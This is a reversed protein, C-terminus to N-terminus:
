LVFVLLVRRVLVALQLPLVLPVLLVLLVLLLRLLVLVQTCTSADTVRGRRHSSRM